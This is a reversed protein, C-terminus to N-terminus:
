KISIRNQYTDTLNHLSHLPDAIYRIHFLSGVFTIEIYAGEVLTRVFSRAFRSESSVSFERVLKSPKKTPCM